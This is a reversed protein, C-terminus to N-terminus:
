ASPSQSAMMPRPPPDDKSRALATATRAVWSPSKTVKAAPRPPRMPGTIGSIAMGVVAPVPLSTDRAAMMMTSDPSFNITKLGWRIGRTEIQSGSNVSPKGGPRVAAVPM